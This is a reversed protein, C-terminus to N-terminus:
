GYKTHDVVLGIQGYWIRNIMRVLALWGLLCECPMALDRCVLQHSDVPLLLVHDRSLFSHIGGSGAESNTM